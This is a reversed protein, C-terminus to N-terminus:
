SPDGEYSALVRVAQTMLAVFAPKTMRHEIGDIIVVVMHAARRVQNRRVAM